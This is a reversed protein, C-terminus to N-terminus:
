SAQKSRRNLENINEVRKRGASFLACAVWLLYGLFYYFIIFLKTLTFTINIIHGDILNINSTVFIYNKINDMFNFSILMFVILCLTTLLWRYGKSVKIFLFKKFHKFSLDDDTFLGLIPFILAYFLMSCALGYLSGSILSYLFLVFTIIVGITNIVRKYLKM